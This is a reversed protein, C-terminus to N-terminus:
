YRRYTFPLSLLYDRFFERMIRAKNQSSLKNFEERIENTNKIFKLIFKNYEKADQESYYDMFLRREEVQSTM